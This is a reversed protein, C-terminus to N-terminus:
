NLIHCWFNGEFYPSKAALVAKHVEFLWKKNGICLKVDCFSGNKHQEFLKRCLEDNKLHLGSRIEEFVSSM